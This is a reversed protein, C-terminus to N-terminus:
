WRVTGDAEVTFDLEKLITELDEYKLDKRGNLYEIIDENYSDDAPYENKFLIIKKGYDINLDNLYNIVKEKRSGSISEGSEDKDATIDNIKSLYRKYVEVNDAIAKSVAYQGPYHIAFDFEAYSGYKSYDTLDIKEKRKVANNIMINKKAVPFDLGAIYDFKQEVTKQKKLGDRYEWYDKIPIDLSAYEEIREEELPQRENDFYDRANKSAYQGFLAAQFKNLVTDEVPFRLNGSKTYSGSVPLDKDFMSLGQVTKRLQGGGMPMLGYYFPKSMEDLISKWDGDVVDAYADSISANYPLASSIPIRGGGLLGGVFPIEEAINSALGSIANAVKDEEDEDGALDRILEEIIGIPDFAADRGTLSSYLANFVYAGVFMTAYGKTLKGIAEKGIEQPMDKFMYGYQNAVELQFATLMKTVPNKAHFITPQNGKSRGGIVNEAFQDADKIAQAETMGANINEYYKSRWVTQSTFNDVIEMLGGVKDGIKDGYGEAIEHATHGYTRQILVSM